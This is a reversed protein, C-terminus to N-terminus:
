SNAEPIQNDMGQLCETMRPPSLINDKIFKRFPGDAWAGLVRLSKVLAYIGLISDTRGIDFLSSVLIKGEAEKALYLHWIDKTAVILPMQIDLPEPSLVPYKPDPSSAWSKLTRMQEMWASIWVALQSRGDSVSSAKTEINIAAPEYRVPGYLTQNILKHQNPVRHLLKTMAKKLEPDGKLTSDIPDLCLNISYDILKSEVPEGIGDKPLLHREPRATSINHHRVGQLQGLALFLLRSTVGDNWAAESATMSACYRSERYILRIEDLEHLIEQKFRTDTNDLMWPRIDQNPDIERQIGQVEESIVAPILGINDKIDKLAALDSPLVQPQIFDFSPTTLFLDSTSKAPSRQSTRSATTSARSSAESQSPSLSPMNISGTNRGRRQPSGTRTLSPDYYGLQPPPETFPHRSGTAHQRRPHYPIQRPTPHESEDYEANPQAVYSDIYFQANQPTPDFDHSDFVREGQGASRYVQSIQRKKPSKPPSAMPFIHDQSFGTQYQIVKTIWNDILDSYDAHEPIIQPM